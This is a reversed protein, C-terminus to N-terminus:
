QMASTGFDDDDDDDDDDHDDHFHVAGRLCARSFCTALGCRVFSRVM